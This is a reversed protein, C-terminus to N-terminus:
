QEFEVIPQDVSLSEGKAALVKAVVGDAAAFLVNEMKMAEIVAVREGAQVKQGVQVAVEALLGPMPSLVYKSMDPPAKFPMLAHLEAMRPSVVMTEVRTGNHQVVLALPNRLTGREVQATFPAGNCEGVVCIDNLRSPSSIAFRKSGVTVVATGIQGVVEDVHVATYRNEGGTGLTIVFEMGAGRAVACGQMDADNVVKTPVNLAEALATGLDFDNWLSALTDDRQGDYTPRSLSPVDLIHGNRVMGPFGVSARHTPPLGDVLEVITSVLRAPPCPYPTDVRVREVTMEGHPDLVSAKIGSGGVDISLTLVGQPWVTTTNEAGVENM